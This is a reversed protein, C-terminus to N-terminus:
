NRKWNEILLIDTLCLGCFFHFVFSNLSAHVFAQERKEKKGAMKQSYYIEKVQGHEIEHQEDRRLAALDM